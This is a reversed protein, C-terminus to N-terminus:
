QLREQIHGMTSRFRNAVHTIQPKQSQNGPKFGHPSPALALILQISINAPILHPLASSVLCHFTLSEIPGRNDEYEKNSGSKSSLNRYKDGKFSAPYFAPLRYNYASRKRKRGYFLPHWVLKCLSFCNPSFVLSNFM